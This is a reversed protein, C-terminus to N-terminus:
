QLLFGEPLLEHVSTSPTDKRMLFATATHGDFRAGNYGKQRLEQRKLQRTADM